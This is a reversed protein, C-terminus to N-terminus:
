ARFFNLKDLKNRRAALAFASWDMGARELAQRATSLASEVNGTEYLAPFFDKAFLLAAESSISRTTGIAAVANGIVLQGAISREIGSLGGLTTGNALIVALSLGVRDTIERASITGKDLLLQTEEGETAIVHGFYYLVDPKNQELALLLDAIDLKETLFQIRWEDLMRAAEEGGGRSSVVGLLKSPGETRRKSLQRGKTDLRRILSWDNTLVPFTALDEVYLGEWPLASLSSANSLSVFLRRKVGMLLSERLALRAEKSFVQELTSAGFSALARADFKEDRGLIFSPLVNKVDFSFEWPPVQPQVGTLKARFAYPRSSPYSGEITLSIDEITPSVIAATGTGKQVTTRIPLQSGTAPATEVVDPVPATAQAAAAIKQLEAYMDRLHPRLKFFQFLNDDAAVTGWEKFDPRRHDDVITKELDLIRQRDYSLRAALAPWAYAFIEGKAFKRRSFCLEAAEKRWTLDMKLVPWDPLKRASEAADKVHRNSAPIQAFARIVGPPVSSLRPDATLLGRRRSQEVPDSAFTFYERVLRQADSTAAESFDPSDEVEKMQEGYGGGEALKAVRQVLESDTGSLSM